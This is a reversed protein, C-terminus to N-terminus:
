GDASGRAPVRVPTKMLFLTWTGIRQFGIAEYARIAPPGSAFLTARTAGARRAEALHLAVARRAHGRGRLGPPTYVGGIQVCDPITANFGTMALPADGAMLVRHSGTEIRLDLDRMAERRAAEPEQGLTEANYAATWDLLVDRDAQRLPHLIGPGDPVRLDALDMAFHPEDQDLDVPRGTLGLGDILPRCEEAPGIVRCVERGRLVELAPGADGSPLVPMVTGNTSLCLVDTVSAGSWAAWFRPAYPHEGDLGYRALNSLPFMARPTRARLFAEIAPLDGPVVRRM